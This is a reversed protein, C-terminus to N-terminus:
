AIELHVGGVTALHTVVIHIVSYGVLKRLISTKTRVLLCTLPFRDHHNHKLAGKQILTCVNSKNLGSKAYILSLFTM